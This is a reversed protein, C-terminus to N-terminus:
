EIEKFPEPLPQLQWAVINADAMWGRSHKAVIYIATDIFREKINASKSEITVIYRGSKKPLRESCPIWRQKELAEFAKRTAVNLSDRETPRNALVDDLIRCIKRCQENRWGM